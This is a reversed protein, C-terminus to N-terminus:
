LVWSLVVRPDAMCGTSAVGAAAGFCGMWVVVLEGEEVVAVLAYVVGFVVVVAVSDPLPAVGVQQREVLGPVVWEGFAM